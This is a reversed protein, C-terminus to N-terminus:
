APFILFIDVQEVPHRRSRVSAPPLHRLAADQPTALNAVVSPSFLPQARPVRPTHSPRLPRYSSLFQLRPSPAPPQSTVWPNQSQHSFRASEKPRPSHVLDRSVPWKM